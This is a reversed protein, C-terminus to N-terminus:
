RLTYLYAAIERADSETVHMDPMVTRADVQQPYRIWRILNEPTNSLRGALYSRRAVGQLSPGVKGSVPASPIHHCSACGYWAVLKKGRMPTQSCGSLMAGLALPILWLRCM